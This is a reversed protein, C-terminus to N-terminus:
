LSRGYSTEVEWIELKVNDSNNPMQGLTTTQVVGGLKPIIGRSEKEYIQNIEDEQFRDVLWFWREEYDNFHREAVLTRNKPVTIIVTREM